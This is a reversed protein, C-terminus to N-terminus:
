AEVARLREEAAQREEEAEQAERETVRLDLEARRRAIQRALLAAQEMYQTRAGPAFDTDPRHDVVDHLV